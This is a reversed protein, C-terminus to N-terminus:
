AAAGSPDFRSHPRQTKALCGFLNRAFESAAFAFTIKSMCPLPMVGSAPVTGARTVKQQPQDRGSFSQRM